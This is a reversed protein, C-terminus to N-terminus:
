TKQKYKPLDNETKRWRYILVRGRDDDINRVNKPDNPESIVSVKLSVYVCVGRMCVYLMRRKITLHLQDFVPREAIKSIVVCISIPRYNSPDGHDGAKFVPIGKAGKWCSPFKCTTFSHNILHAIIPTIVPAALKFQKSPINDM